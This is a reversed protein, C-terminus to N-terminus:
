LYLTNIDFVKDNKILYEGIIEEFSSNFFKVLIQNIVTSKFLWFKKDPFFKYTKKQKQNKIKLFYISTFVFYKSKILISLICVIIWNM